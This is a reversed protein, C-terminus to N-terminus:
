PTATVLRHRKRMMAGTLGFGLIMLAWSSPEPIAATPAAWAMLGDYVGVDPSGGGVVRLDLAKFADGPNQAQFGVSTFFDHDIDVSTTLWNGAVGASDVIRYQLPVNVLSFGSSIDATFAGMLGGSDLSFRTFSDSTGAGAAYIAYNGEHKFTTWWASAVVVDGLGLYSANLGDQSYTMPSYFPVTMGEFDNTFQQTTLDPVHTTFYVVDASAAVPVALLAASALAGVLGRHLSM